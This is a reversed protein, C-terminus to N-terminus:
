NQGYVIIRNAGGCAENHNGNCPYNCGASLYDSGSAISSDAPASNSGYCEGYYELGCYDYGQGSCADLCNEVTANSYGGTSALSITNPLIRGNQGDIYCNMLSYGGYSSPDGFTNVYSNDIVVSLRDSAGCNQAPDGSCAYSCDSSSAQNSPLSNGCWCEYSYETGSYQYGATRCEEACSQPTNSSSAGQYNPLERNPDQDYYCGVAAFGSPFATVTSTITSTPTYTTAIM